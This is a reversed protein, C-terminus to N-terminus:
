PLKPLVLDAIAFAAARTDTSSPNIVDVDLEINGSLVALGSEQDFYAEDGPSSLIDDGFITPISEFTEKVKSGYASLDYTSIDAETSNDSDFVCTDGRATGAKTFQDGVAVTLDALSVLTCEKIQPTSDNITAGTDAPTATRKPTATAKPTATKKATATAKSTVTPTSTTGAGASATSTASSNDDGGCAAFALSLGIVTALAAITWQNKMAVGIELGRAFAIGLM